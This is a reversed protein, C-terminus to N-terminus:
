RKDKTDIVVGSFFFILSELMGSIFLKCKTKQTM